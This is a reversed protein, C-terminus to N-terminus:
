VRNNEVRLKVVHKAAAFAGDTAAKDGFM